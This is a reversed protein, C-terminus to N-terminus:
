QNMELNLTSLTDIKRRSYILISQGKSNVGFQQDPCSSWTLEEEIRASMKGNIEKEREDM